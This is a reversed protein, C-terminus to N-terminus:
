LNVDEWRYRCEGLQRKGGTKEMLGRFAGKKEWM